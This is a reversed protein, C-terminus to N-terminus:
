DKQRSNDEAQQALAKEVDEKSLTVLQEDTVKDYGVLRNAQQTITKEFLNRADRANAFNEPKHACREVFYQSLLAKAEETIEYRNKACM